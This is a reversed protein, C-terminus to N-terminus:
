AWRIRPEAPKVGTLSAGIAMYFGCMGDIKDASRKKTPKMSNNEDRVVVLNSANWRLVPHGDHQLEKSLYLRDAEKIAPHYSKFGQIFQVMPVGQKALSTATATANWSDFACQQIGYTHHLKLVAAEIQEQDIVEGDVVTIRDSKAWGGYPSVGRAERAKITESPVWFWARVYVRRYGVWVLVLAVLDTTSAMDLGAYCPLGRLDADTFERECADWKVLNIHGTATSSQRNCRKIRFEAQLGPMGKAEIALKRIEALLKPNVDILPNAKGWCAEDFEDDAPTGAEKDEEDIAYIVAFVHDAVVTGLLVARAFARQEPWPGPTEYGETTTFLFLPSGRGGAASKLVNLLDHTKHAHVEDLVVASPNLGDQTSAKSNIPKFTGGTQFRAISNSFAEVDFAERLDPTMEVMRRAINFVIRAQGGTTAASIVQAGAEDECCLCYLMIAAAITSKANKRAVAFVATTFRRSGDANRFGFLNVVLFVHAPHLVIDTQESGDPNFWKGEVHPLSEIFRCADVAREPAFTYIARGATVAELDNLFRQAALRM